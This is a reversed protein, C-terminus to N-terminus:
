WTFRGDWYFGRDDRSPIRMKRCNSRHDYLLIVCTSNWEAGPISARPNYRPLRLEVYSYGHKLICVPVPVPPLTTTSKTLPRPNLYLARRSDIDCFEGVYNWVSEPLWMKVSRSLKPSQKLGSIRLRCWYNILVILFFSQKLIM